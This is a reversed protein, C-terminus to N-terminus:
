QGPGTLFRDHWAPQVTVVNVGQGFAGAGTYVGVHQDGAHHEPPYLGPHQRQGRQATVMLGYQAARIGSRWHESYRYGHNVGVHM